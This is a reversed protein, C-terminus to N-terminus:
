FLEARCTLLLTSSLFWNASSVFTWYTDQLISEFPERYKLVAAPHMEPCWNTWNWLLIPGLACCQRIHVTHCYLHWLEEKRVTWHNIQPWFIKGTLLHLISPSSMRKLVTDPQQVTCKEHWVRCRPFDWWGFRLQQSAAGFVARLSVRLQVACHRNVCLAICDSLKCCQRTDSVSCKVFPAWHLM